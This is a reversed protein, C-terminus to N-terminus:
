GPNLVIHQFLVLINQNQIERITNATTAVSKSGSLSQLCMLLNFHIAKQKTMPPSKAGLKPPCFINQPGIIKSQGKNPSFKWKLALFKQHGKKTM